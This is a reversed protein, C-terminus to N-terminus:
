KLSKLFSMMDAIETDLLKDLLGVPMLSTDTVRRSAIQKGDIRVTSDAGTQLIVGDVAEYIILGQYVKGNETTILTTRYRPSGSPLIPAKRRPERLAQEEWARGCGALVCRM